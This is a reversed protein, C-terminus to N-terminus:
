GLLMQFYCYDKLTTAPLEPASTLGTCGYFMSAYCNNALTTAPLEPASTLGTCGRFMQYYCSGALTTAPLEPASTLGTCGFFMGQYCYDALTTAPLVLKKSPHNKIFINNKFLNALAYTGALSTNTAFNEKNILSMINGYVYCDKDCSIISNSIETAYSANTGRFSVKDGINNLPVPTESNYVSWNVGGDTSYEVIITNNRLKFTVKAGAQKAELTLPQSLMPDAQAWINAPWLLLAVLVIVVRKIM